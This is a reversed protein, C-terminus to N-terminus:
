PASHQRSRRSRKRQEPFPEAVLMMVQKCLVHMLQGPLVHRGDGGRDVKLVLQLLQPPLELGLVQLLDALLGLLPVLPVGDDGALPWLEVAIEAVDEALVILHLQGRGAPMVALGRPVVEGNVPDSRVRGDEDGFFFYVFIVLVAEFSVPNM